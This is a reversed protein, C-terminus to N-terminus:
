IGLKKLVDEQVYIAYLKRMCKESLLESMIPDKEDRFATSEVILGTAEEVTKAECDVIFDLMKNIIKTYQDKMMLLKDYDKCVQSYVTEKLPKLVDFFINAEKNGQNLQLTFHDYSNSNKIAAQCSLGDELVIETNSTRRDRYFGHHAVLATGFKDWGKFTKFIFEKDQFHRYIIM